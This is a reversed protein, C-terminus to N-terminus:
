IKILKLQSDISKSKLQIFYVGNSLGSLNVPFNAIGPTVSQKGKKLKRGAQDALFWTIEENQNIDLLLNAHDRVPNPFVTVYNRNYSVTVVLVNTYESKGEANLVRLRYFIKGSGLNAAGYDTFSFQQMGMEKGPGTTTGAEIFTKGDLSREIHWATSYEEREAKWSLYCNHGMQHAIFKVLTMPLLLTDNIFYSETVPGRHPPSSLISGARVYPYLQQGSQRSNILANARILVPVLFCFAICTSVIITRKMM